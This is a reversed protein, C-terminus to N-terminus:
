SPWTRCPRNGPAPWAWGHRNSASRGPQSGAEPAVDGHEDRAFLLRTLPSRHTDYSGAWWVIVQHRARTLAVYALRLDEGRQESVHQARHRVFDPGELSVDITREDAAAPDHFFV